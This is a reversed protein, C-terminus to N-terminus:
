AWRDHPREPLLGVSPLLRLLLRELVNISMSNGIMYGVQRDSIGKRHVDARMGQLALMEEITLLRGRTSVWHGGSGARGRTLCPCLGKMGHPGFGGFM